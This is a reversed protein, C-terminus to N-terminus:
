ITLFAGEFYALMERYQESEEPYDNVYAKINQYILEQPIGGGKFLTGMQELTFPVKVEDM